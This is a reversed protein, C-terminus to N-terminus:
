VGEPAPDIGNPIGDGDIDPDAEDLIGDVDVDGDFPNNFGDGDVDPDTENPIGDGDLDGSSSCACGCVPPLKKTTIAGGFNHGCCSEIIENNAGRLPGFGRARWSATITGCAPVNEYEFRLVRRNDNIWVQEPTSSGSLSVGYAWGPCPRNFPDIGTFIVEVEFVFRGPTCPM